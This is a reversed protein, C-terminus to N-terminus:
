REGRQGDDIERGERARGVDVIEQDAQCDHLDGLDRSGEQDAVSGRPAKIHDHMAMMANAFWGIMLGEDITLAHQERMTKCFFEAWAKADPNHHINRDYDGERVLNPRYHADLQTLALRLVERLDRKGWFTVASSDDDGPKHLFPGQYQKGDVTAPLELYFRLGTFGGKEVIEVRDTMEESYVNVRM